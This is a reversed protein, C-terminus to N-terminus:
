LSFGIETQKLLESVEQPHQLITIISSIGEILDGIEKEDKGRGRARQQALRQGPQQGRRKHPKRRIVEGNLRM